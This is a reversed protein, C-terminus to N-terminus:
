GCAAWRLNQPLKRANEQGLIAILALGIAMVRAIQFIGQVRELSFNVLVQGSLVGTAIIGVMLMTWVLGTIRGREEPRSLDTVLALFATGSMYTAMGELLFFLFGLLLRLGSPDAALWRAVALSTVLVM